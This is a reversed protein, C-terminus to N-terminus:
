LLGAEELVAAIARVNEGELAAVPETMTNTRIVGMLQLATKFSGVGAGYGSVGSTVAVIRMLDALEDQLLRVTDWDGAQAARWQEVFPEPSVNALGPVAGDAGSLYAGDVVVEHGTLLALPRGAAANARALQRFAVDDGSSDKVGDIIGESGLRLLMAAELKTHVCVPIDYAFLPLDVRERIVRFHREVVEPGGLAYFPATAVLADVGLEQATRAQAVVRETQTDIVGAFVPVREDVIRMGEALIERRRADTSFAAEGSSGLLFLGDVGADILRELVAAYSAVDLEGDTTLPTIVPPIVGRFSDTPSVM